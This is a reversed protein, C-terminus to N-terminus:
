LLDGLFDLHKEKFAKKFSKSLPLTQNNTLKVENSNIQLVYNLNVLFANHCKFFSFADLEKSLETVTKLTTYSNNTLFVHTKKNSAEIYLIDNININIGNCKITKESYILKFYSDMVYNFKKEDIPKILYSLPRIDYGDSLYITSNSVLIINLKTDITIFNKILEIGNLNNLEIDLFILDYKTIQSILSMGDYYCDISFNNINNSENYKLVMDKIKKIDEIQDDCIACKINM